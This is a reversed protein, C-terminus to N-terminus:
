RVAAIYTVRLGPLVGAAIFQPVGQQNLLYVAVGSSGGYLFNYSPDAAIPGCEAATGVGAVPTLTGTSADIGLEYFCGATTTDSTATTVIAYQGSGDITVSIQQPATVAAASLPIATLEGTQSDISWASLQANATVSQDANAVYLFKGSPHIVGPGPVVHYAVPSGALQTLAGTAADISFEYIGIPTTDYLFRGDPTILANGAAAPAGLTSRLALAGTSPDISYVELDGSVAVAYLFDAAPDAALTAISQGADFPAGPVGLLSGDAQIAFADLPNSALEISYLFKGGRSIAIPAGITKPGFPTSNVVGFRGTSPDFRFAYIGSALTANPTSQYASAYVIRLPLSQAGGSSGGGSTGGGTGGGGCAALTAALCAAAWCRVRRMTARSPERDNPIM